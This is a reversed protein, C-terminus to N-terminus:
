FGVKEVSDAPKQGSEGAAELRGGRERGDVLQFFVTLLCRRSGVRSNGRSVFLTVPLLRNGRAPSM